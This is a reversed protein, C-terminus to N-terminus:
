EKGGRRGYILLSAILGLNDLITERKQDGPRLELLSEAWAHLRPSERRDLNRAISYALLPQYRLGLVDGKKGSSDIYLKYDRWMRAYRLLSYLFASPVKGNGSVVSQLTQWEQKVQQWETWSLTHGLVTLHDKNAAKKSSVLLYEAEEAARAIPFSPKTLLVGASLTINSPNGTFRDLDTRIREALLPMQDWPGVLFLDDGGSFVTYCDKFDSSTLHEVWGSFFLDLMRSLTTIRSITDISNEVRRLGFVFTKGLNDVDAKLFGLLEAGRSRHAICEFPAPDDSGVNVEQGHMSNNEDFSPCDGISAVHNALYRSIAPYETLGSADMTNLDMVLYPQGKTRDAGTGVTVSYGLVPIDGIGPEKYFALRRARALQSGTMADRYCHPCLDDEGAGDGSKRSAPFKGCSRCVHKGEFPTAVAFSDEHWGESSKLCGALPTQKNHDLERALRQLVVGFGRQRDPGAKFGEEDFTVFALNLTLEGNLHRLCWQDVQRKTEEICELTQPLNPLLLHFKGGSNMVMNLIPLNLKHLILHAAVESCLQVYLSRARLRRGVGGGVGARAIDFIYRQIGSIDGVLLCFRDGDPHALANEALSGTMTHYQYLCTAIAATTKLHDFLSVDPVQEQTNAPICWTYRYIIGTLHALLANFDSKDVPARGKTGGVFLARFERGFRRLHDSLESSSYTEFPQPFVLYDSQESSMDLSSPLARAHFRLKLNDDTERNVRELVSMLPTAKYDQRHDSAEGRESASLNDAKSILRALTREHDDEIGQVLLESPFHQPSEHHRQVLLELLASDTTGSFLDKFASVFNASVQPHRGEIGLDPGFDGRMLVKGVDHLLGALIVTQYERVDHGTIAM